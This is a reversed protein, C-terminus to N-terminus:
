KAAGIPAMWIDLGGKGGPRDSVFYLKTGDASVAPQMDGRKGESSNIATMEEPETWSAGPLPEAAEPDGKSSAADFLITFWFTSGWGVTSDVGIEGHMLEVLRKSITLGLGTGGYKRSTSGDAQSFPQFLRERVEPAIGIGTDQVDFRLLSTQDVESALRVRVVVEGGRDTFKVANGVLNVLVQHLRGPDGRLRRPVTPHVRATLEVGKSRAREAMLDRGGLVLTADLWAERGMWRTAKQPDVLFEWVTEPRAAIAFEREVSTETTAEM